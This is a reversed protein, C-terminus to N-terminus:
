ELTRGLTAEAVGRAPLLEQASRQLFRFLYGVGNQKQGRLARLVERTDHQVQHGDSSESESHANVFTCRPAFITRTTSKRSAPFFRRRRWIRSAAHSSISRSPRSARDM